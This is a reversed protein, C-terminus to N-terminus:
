PLALPAVRLESSDIIRRVTPMTPSSRFQANIRLDRIHPPEHLADVLDSSARPALKDPLM